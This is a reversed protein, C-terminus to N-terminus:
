LKAYGLLLCLEGQFFQFATQPFNWSFYVAQYLIGNLVSSIIHVINM